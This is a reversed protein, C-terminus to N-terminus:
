LKLSESKAKEFVEKMYVQKGDQRKSENGAEMFTFIELTEDFSVPAEKTRFFQLIEKLLDKYGDYGGVQAAQETTFATGGFVHKGERVGRFTGIRNDNWKGVAVVTGETSTCSVTECGVGMITYLTEVGHIGYWYNDAHSPENVCPSYCDAGVVKGMKGARIEQNKPVFRLASSTFMPVKYKEALRIIAIAQPLNAGIPKDIFVTKGAKFVEEAQALHENGDNTELLVCDVEKLLEAISNVIKVGHAKAEETYKPIRDYSSKIKRSGYPYAAVVKFGEYPKEKTEANLMKIFAPAHSTDLGIVGVKIDSGKAFTLLSILSIVVFFLVRKM